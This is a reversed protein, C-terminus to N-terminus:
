AEKKYKDIAERSLSARSPQAWNICRWDSSSRMCMNFIEVIEALHVVMGECGAMLCGGVLEFGDAAHQLLDVFVLLLNRAEM